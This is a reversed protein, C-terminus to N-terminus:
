VYIWSIYWCQKLLARDVRNETDIVPREDLRARNERRAMVDCKLAICLEYPVVVVVVVVVVAGM